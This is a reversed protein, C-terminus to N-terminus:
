RSRQMRVVVRWRVGGCVCHVGEEELAGMGLFMRAVDVVSADLEWGLQRLSPDAAHIARAASGCCLGLMAIPPQLADAAPTAGGPPPALCAAAALYDRRSAARRWTTRAHMTPTSVHLCPPPQRWGCGPPARPSAPAAPSSGGVWRCVCMCARGCVFM